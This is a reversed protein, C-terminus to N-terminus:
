EVIKLIGHRLNFSLESLLEIDNLLKLNLHRDLQYQLEYLSFDSSKDMALEFDCSFSDLMSMYKDTLNKM